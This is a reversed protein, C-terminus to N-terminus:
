PTSLHRDTPTLAQRLRSPLASRYRHWQHRTRTTHARLTDTLAQYRHLPVALDTFLDAENLIEGCFAKTQPAWESFPYRDHTLTLLATASLTDGAQLARRAETLLCLRQYTILDGYVPDIYRHGPTGKPRTALLRRRSEQAYRNAKKVKRCVQQRPKEATPTLSNPNKM